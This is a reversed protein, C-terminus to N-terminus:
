ESSDGKLWALFEDFKLEKGNKLPNGLGIGGRVSDKELDVLYWRSSEKNLKLPGLGSSKGAGISLGMESILELTFALLKSDEGGPALNDAVLVLKLTGRTIIETFHLAGERVKGSSREIGIGPRTETQANIVTDLFRVKGSLVRNGYLKGIPCYLSLYDEAMRYALRDRAKKEKSKVENVDEDAYGLEALIKKLYETKNPILKSIGGRIVRIFDEVFDEFDKKLLSSRLGSYSIGGDGEYYLKVAINAPSEYKMTKALKESLSRFAGKWTSSPILLEGSPLRVFARRVEGGGAGM